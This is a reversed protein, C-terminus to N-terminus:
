LYVAEVWLHLPFGKEHLMVRVAGVIIEKNREAVGNQQLNEKFDKKPMFNRSNM